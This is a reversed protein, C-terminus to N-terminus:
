DEGESPPIQINILEEPDEIDLTIIKDTGEETITVITTYVENLISVTNDAEVKIKIRM